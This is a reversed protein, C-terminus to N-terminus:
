IGSYYNQKVDTATLERDYVTFFDVFLKQRITRIKVLKLLNSFNLLAVTRQQILDGNLYVNIATTTTTKWTVILKIQEPTTILSILGKQRNYITTLNKFLDESRFSIEFSGETFDELNNPVILQSTPDESSLVLKNDAVTAQTYIINNENLLGVLKKEQSDYSKRASMYLTANDIVKNPGIFASM